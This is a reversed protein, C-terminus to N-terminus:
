LMAPINRTPYTPSPLFISYVEPYRIFVGVEVEVKVKL